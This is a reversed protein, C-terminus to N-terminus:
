LFTSINFLLVRVVEQRNCCLEKIHTLLSLVATSPVLFENDVFKRWINKFLGNDKEKLDELYVCLEDCVM